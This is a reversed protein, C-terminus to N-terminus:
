THEKYLVFFRFEVKAADAAKQVAKLDQKLAKLRDEQKKADKSVNELTVEDNRLKRAAHAIKSEAAVLDPKQLM